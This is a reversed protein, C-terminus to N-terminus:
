NTEAVSGLSNAGQPRFIIVTPKKNAAENELGAKEAIERLGDTAKDRDRGIEGALGL